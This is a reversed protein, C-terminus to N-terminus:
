KFHLTIQDILATASVIKFTFVFSVAGSSEQHSISEAVCTDDECKISVPDFSPDLGHGIFLRRKVVDLNSINRDRENTIVSSLQEALYPQTFYRAITEEHAVSAAIYARYAVRVMEEPRQNAADASCFGACALILFVFFTTKRM